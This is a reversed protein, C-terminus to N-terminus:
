FGLQKKYKAAIIDMINNSISGIGSSWAAGSGLYGSARASGADALSNGVQSGETGLVGATTRAGTDLQGGLNTASVQGLGAQSALKNYINAKNNTDINYRNLYEQMSRNYANGYAQSALDTNFTAFDKLFGGNGVTGRAAASKQLADDGLKLRSLFEPDNQLSDATPAQYKETFPQLLYGAMPDTSGAGTGAPNMDPGTNINTIGEQPNVFANTSTQPDNDTRRAISGGGPLSIYQLPIGAKAWADTTAADPSVNQDVASAAKIASASDPAGAIADRVGQSPDVQPAYPTGNPATTFNPNLGMMTNLRMLSSTGSAVYPAMIAKNYADVQKQYNLAQTADQHQLNAAYMDAQSAANSANKASKAGIISQTLGGAVAVGVLAALPM